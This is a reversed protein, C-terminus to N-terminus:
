QIDLNQVQIQTESLYRWTVNLDFLHCGYIRVPSPVQYAPKPDQCLIENILEVVPQQLRTQHKQASLM